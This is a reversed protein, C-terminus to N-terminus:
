FMVKLGFWITRTGGSTLRPDGFGTGELQYGADELFPDVSSFNAHNFVNNMTMHFQLINRETFKINKFLTFNGTNTWADRATNRGVNGFPTGYISDATGGNVIYRIQSKTVNNVAGSVDFAGLDVLQSTPLMCGAGDLLCLDGAFIGVSTAPASPNGWFPRSTEYTGIFALDFTTDNAVGGSFANSFFQIPTYPQGSAIFYSGAIAWGGLVHGVIGHQARFAPIDEVFSATWNNPIDVGSLGHEASTYSLPNQSFALSNGGAFTSFIESVNDTAKSFTYATRLTLQRWLNTSRLEAQLAEYDSYGTNTRIREVGENCNVRGVASPVVASAAPCPTDGSPVLNPYSAALGAIYPNGNISQFLNLAHNGVYRVELVAAKSLERQVGLSWSHVKDPGFNPTVTTQNFSRPDDVGFQLFSAAAARVNVGNPDAPLAPPATNPLAITQALVNPASSAINLYINYFPPDYALRYGGRWVTKNGSGGGLWRSHPTYAFGISPGFSTKPAPISPFTTVSLPLSPDWFPDSGSQQKTTKDHFLNAPQGYYSWTLGLNLTLNEKVKWDDGVYLFTDYERFDLSPSGSTVSLSDPTNAAFAGWDAFTYSGNINPLFTNPSRQYTFNAGAKFQHKGVSFDFNDQLQYTNVIRGQPLNDAAGFGLLSTDAFNIRTLGNAIEADTPVTNGITNGGFQVNLRSYSARFQNVARASFTHAWDLLFSQSFSPVNVPYGASAQGEDVNFFSEKQFLYRGSFRDSASIDVDVRYIWDYEHASDSLLRQVGNLEYGCAPVMTTPDITNNVPAGDYYGTSPTGQPQPNGAIAYPGFAQLAAVSASGPFCAALEGIGTPTPTLGGGGYVTSSETLETDFGGFIFVHDKWLPGGITASPFITNFRPQKTLGEFYIQTNSLSELVSNTEDAKVAGHWVNTGSKSIINVVSGSNRGYEPGFNDTTIQYESVFDVNALFLGPGAVSNDNNNQGDIQQDNNRGRLGNVSFDVGNSNSFGVDRSMVVGPVQLALIDLGENEVVGSSTALAEGGFSNTVQAQTAEILPQSEATVEVTAASSGIELKLIGLSADANVNVGVVNLQLKRFGSKEIDVTYEGVPLQSLKFSGTKDSSAKEALGTERNRATVQADPIAAGTQDMVTGSISGNSVQARAPVAALLAFSVTVIALWASRFNLML